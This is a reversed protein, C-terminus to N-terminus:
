GRRELCRHPSSRTLHPIIVQLAYLCDDLSLLTHKYFAVIIVEEDPFLVTSRPIKSGM